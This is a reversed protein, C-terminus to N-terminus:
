QSPTLWGRGIAQQHVMQLKREEDIGPQDLIQEIWKTNSDGTARGALLIVSLWAVGEEERVGGLNAIRMAESTCEPLSAKAALDEHYLRLYTQLRIEIPERRGWTAACFNVYRIIAGEDMFGWRRADTIWGSVSERIEADSEPLRDRYRSKVDQVTRLLFDESASRDFVHMQDNRIVLV